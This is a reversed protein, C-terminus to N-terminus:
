RRAPRTSSRLAAVVVFVMAGVGWQVWVLALAAGVLAGVVPGSISM